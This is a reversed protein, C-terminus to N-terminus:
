DSFWCLVCCYVVIAFGGSVCNGRIFCWMLIIKATEKISDKMKRCGSKRNAESQEKQM